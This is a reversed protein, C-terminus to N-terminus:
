ISQIKPSCFNQAGLDIYQAFTCRFATGSKRYLTQYEGTTKLSMKSGVVRKSTDLNM